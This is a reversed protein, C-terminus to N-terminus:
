QADLQSPRSDIAKGLENEELAIENREKVLSNYTDILTQTKKVSQNYSAVAANYPAVGANYQEIKGAKKLSNLQQYQQNLSSADTDIKALMTDIEPKLKKLQEDAADVKAQRGTFEAQYRESLNVITERNSFYKAYHDELEKPLARVETGLISHLENPIDAGADRYSQITKKVREDGLNDFATQLQQNLTRKESGGLREYAAHLTEHAATVQM